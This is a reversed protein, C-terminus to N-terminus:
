FPQCRNDALPECSRFVTDRRSGRFLQDLARLNGAKAGVTQVPMEIATVKAIEPFPISLCFGVSEEGYRLNL